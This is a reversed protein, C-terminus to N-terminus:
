DFKIFILFLMIIISIATTIIVKLDIYTKKPASNVYSDDSNTPVSLEISLNIVFILWRIAVFLLFNTFLYM